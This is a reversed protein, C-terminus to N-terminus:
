DVTMVIKGIHTSAEMRAHAEAAKELPLVTDIVPKARGEALLPLVHRELAAGIAGKDAVPRPRLTSGSITLRKQMIALLNAEVKPGQQVAVQVLRGEVALAKLNRAFYDGAVMDMIVDVGQGGTLQAVVEVFDETRYNIAREAGLKECAACKDASGATVFVRAGFIKALQIATTGIGSSGGHILVSEGGQLRAREFLNTWVTFYTEPIAAAEVRSLAAPVPLCQAEPAVCYEAYGGGAVLAMVRNGPRFRQVGAGCAVVEGAVELGPIDSAGPPPPYGGARQMVDPRNVGAAQVRILVEDHGPAPVPRRCPQLVEPGGPKVIEIATMESPLDTM